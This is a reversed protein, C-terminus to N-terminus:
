VCGAKLCLRTMELVRRARVHCHHPQCPRSLSVVLLAPWRWRSAHSQPAPNPVNQEETDVPRCGPPSKGTAAQDVQPARSFTCVFLM